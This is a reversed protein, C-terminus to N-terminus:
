QNMWFEPIREVTYGPEAGNDTQGSDEEDLTKMGTQRDTFDHLSRFVVREPHGIQLNDKLFQHVSIAHSEINPQRYEEVEDFADTAEQKTEFPGEFTENFDSSYEVTYVYMQDELWVKFTPPEQEEYEDIIRELAKAQTSEATRHCSGCATLLNDPHDTGGYDDPIIHHAHLGVGSEQKHQHNTRYCFRCQYDDRKLVHERIESWSMEDPDIDENM